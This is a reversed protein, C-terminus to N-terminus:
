PEERKEAAPVRVTFTTGEGVRSEVTVRGGHLEVIEKVIALGLGTGPVQMRRPEVGRFFRDFIHPMEEEPIGMGTDAVRVVAWVRGEAEERGTSVVVRGESTYQIGNVVLNDLVQMMREPDVLAVPGPEAPRHELELGRRQALTRHSVVAAETLENLPTPRLKVELRGADIRSIQLIDEVLRAQRDAEQALPELYEEWREPQRQMLHVYLKITTVPTRLEHSVNSVFRTRMRDLAKLHSVDHVSVVVMPEEGGGGVVPAARLELDLGKLELVTEPREEARAALDRMAEWLQEAEEPSLTQTLWRQVVPNAHLIEGARNAVIIGDTTSRLIAELRAHEAQIQAARELKEIAVALQDAMTQLIAVDEEDFAAEQVSQVDLAGIIRDGVRLPLALESRTEPLLPNKFHIADTDVDLVIRPQGTSTVYGVIGVEGVKLKHGRELMRRGAESTAARLVAYEGREDLLFIGAHYFGFRERILNVARDLLDDMEEATTAERAVEAAVRLQVTRRELDSTREAVRRELKEAHSHLEQYLRANEIATAVQNAFAKLRRADAPGFRGPHTADVNLFGITLRGIRIPAGLYSRLWEWGEILVWDPNAATDSVLVPEGTEIGRMLNPYDAIPLSLDAIRDEVGLAAYGRWRAVQAEEGEVLMINFADGPVVREVQELIRDLVQNLDLTSSVLAAAEALAEALGRQQQEAQFLRSNEIAIALTDAVQELVPLQEEPFAEPRRSGLNLSGIVRDGIRLPLIVRSRLGAQYLAQETPLDAEAALDATLHPRGALVDETASSAALPMVTGEGLTPSSPALVAVRFHEGTEELLAVSIRDCGTLDRLGEALVPFAQRIDLRNLARAIHSVTEQEMAWRRAEEYLRANRLAIAAQTAFLSLLEADAPSFTRPPDAQVSLVGLFAEGWRIPVAVVATWPYGEYVAARGEWHRYDNVILPEGSEWVRGSLGEGRRLTTGVPPPHSGIPVAWRLMDEEPRYLYLGGGSGGLLEVARSVISRLLTDPDLETTLELGVERLAELQASRRALEQTREEVRRELRTTLERLPNLIQRNVIGYGLIAISVTTTIAMVPIPPDLLAGTLFGVLLIFVSAAPVRERTRRRERWFLVLSWALYLAMPISGVVGWATLDHSTTGNPNLHPNLIVQHRLLPVSLALWIGLGLLVARDTRRTPHGVYRATFLLLLPGMLGFFLASLELLLVPNGVSLWLALRLLLALTAWAAEALTFLAFLYNLRHRPRVGVMMLALATAIVASAAYAAMDLWFLPPM